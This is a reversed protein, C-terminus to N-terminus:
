ALRHEDRRRARQRLITRRVRYVPLWLQHSAKPDSVDGSLPTAVSGLGGALPKLTAGHIDDIVARGASGVITFAM